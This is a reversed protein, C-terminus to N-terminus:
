RRGAIPESKEDHYSMSSCLSLRLARMRRKYHLRKSSCFSGPVFSPLVSGTWRVWCVGLSGTGRWRSLLFKPHEADTPKWLDVLRSRYRATNRMAAACRM